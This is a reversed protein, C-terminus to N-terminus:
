KMEKWMELLEDYMDKLMKKKQMKMNRNYIYAKINECEARYWMMLVKKYLESKTQPKKIRPM